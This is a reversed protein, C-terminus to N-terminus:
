CARPPLRGLGEETTQLRYDTTQLRTTDHSYGQARGVGPALRQARIRAMRAREGGQPPDVRDTPANVWSDAPNETVSVRKFIATKMSKSLMSIPTFDVRPWANSTPTTSSAM